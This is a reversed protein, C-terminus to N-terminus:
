IDGKIFVVGDCHIMIVNFLPRATKNPNAQMPIANIAAFKWLIIFQARDIKPIIPPGKNPSKVRPIIKGNTLSVAVIGDKTKAIANPKHSPNPPGFGGTPLNFPSRDSHSTIFIILSEDHITLLPVAAVCNTMWTGVFQM